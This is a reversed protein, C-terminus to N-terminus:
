ESDTDSNNDSGDVVVRLPQIYGNFAPMENKIYFEASTKSSFALLAQKEDDFYFTNDANMLYYVAQDIKQEHKYGKLAEKAILYKSALKHYATQLKTEDELGQIKFYLSPILEESILYRNEDAFEMKFNNDWNEVFESRSLNYVCYCLFWYLIINTWFDIESVNPLICFISFAGFAFIFIVVFNLWTQRSFKLFHLPSM